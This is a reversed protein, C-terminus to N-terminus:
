VDIKLSRESMETKMTLSEETLNVIPAVSGSARAKRATDIIEDDRIYTVPQGKHVQKM